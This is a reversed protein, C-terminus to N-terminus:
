IFQHARRMGPMDGSIRGGGGPVTYTDQILRIQETKM